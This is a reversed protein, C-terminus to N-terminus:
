KTSNTNTWATSSSKYQTIITYTTNILKVLHIFASSRYEM